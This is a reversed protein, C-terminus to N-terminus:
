LSLVKVRGNDRSLRGATELEDLYTYVTQRTVGVARGAATPGANPADLYFDLLADLRAAKAQRRGAQLVDIKVDNKGDKSAIRSSEMVPAQRKKQRRAKREKKVTEIAEMRRRHDGRLALVTVGCLSLLPFIAPSYVALAPAIDLAVTLGVAVALYVAVLVAALTFPAVPDSKRKGQNYGRLELATATTALGLSEVVVAAAVGVANPWHLHEVTARGVLYATPIPAAWPAVKAVADTALAEAQGLQNRLRELVM